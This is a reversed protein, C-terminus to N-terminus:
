EQLRGYSMDFGPDVNAMDLGHALRNATPHNVEFSYQSDIARGKGEETEGLMAIQVVEYTPPRFSNTTTASHTLCLTKSILFM